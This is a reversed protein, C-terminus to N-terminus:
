YLIRFTLSVRPEIVKASKPITHEWKHQTEGKMLLYMGHSLVLSRVLKHNDVHRFKFVRSAGFSVSAIIPNVRLVKENDRHWSVSDNGDRYLNLLVSTFTVGAHQEVRYKIFLLEETWPQAKQGIGSYTYDAAHDGYWATLRPLRVEKGYFKMKDQKWEINRMLRDLLLDSEGASFFGPYAEVIGDGPLLNGSLSDTEVSNKFLEKQM